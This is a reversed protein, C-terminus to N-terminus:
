LDEVFFLENYDAVKEESVQFNMGSRENTRQNGGFIVLTMLRFTTLLLM